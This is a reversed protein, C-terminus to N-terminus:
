CFNCMLRLCFTIKKCHLTFEDWKQWKYFVFYVKYPKFKGKYAQNKDMRYPSV